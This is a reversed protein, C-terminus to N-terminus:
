PEFQIRDNSVEGPHPKAVRWWQGMARVAFQKRGTLKNVRGQLLYQENGFGFLTVDTWKSWPFFLTKISM